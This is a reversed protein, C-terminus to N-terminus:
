GRQLLIQGHVFNVNEHVKSQTFKGDVFLHKLM